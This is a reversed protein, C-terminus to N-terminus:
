PGIQKKVIDGVTIGHEAIKGANIELVYKYPAPSSIIEVSKAPANEKIHIVKMDEDVFVIDLAILTDKMWFDEQVPQSFVFWMGANEPLSERNMLGQAKQEDTEAIEVSFPTDGVVITAVATASGPAQVDIGGNGTTGSDEVTAPGETQMKECGSIVFLAAAVIGLITVLYKM